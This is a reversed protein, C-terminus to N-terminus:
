PHRVTAKSVDKEVRFLKWCGTAKRFVLMSVLVFIYDELRMYVCKVKSGEFLREVGCCRTSWGEYYRVVLMGGIYVGVNVCLEMGSGTYYL